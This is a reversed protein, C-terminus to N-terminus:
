AFPFSVSKTAQVQANFTRKVGRVRDARNIPAHTAVAVGLTQLAAPKAAGAILIGQEEFFIGQYANLFERNWQTPFEITEQIRASILCSFRPPPGSKAFNGTLKGTLLSNPANAASQMTLWPLATSIEADNLILTMKDYVM